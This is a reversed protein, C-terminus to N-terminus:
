RGFYADVRQQANARLNYYYFQYDQGHYIGKPMSSAYNDSDVNTCMVTGRELNIKANAVGPIISTYSGDANEMYSGLNLSVDAETDTTTWSLPNICIGKGAAMLPNDGEIVEAETNYSIIVKTDTASQAPLISPNSDYYAQTIDYGILYAAIMRNYLEPKKTLYDSLFYLMINSGQSHTAIIFPRKNNYNEIFYEFAAILDTLPEAAYRIKNEEASKYLIDISSQRYYPAFINGITEFATAQGNYLKQAKSRYDADNVDAYKNPGFYATPFIYFVDVDKSISSIQLWNSTIKYDIPTVNNDSDSDHCSTLVFSSLGIFILSYFINKM